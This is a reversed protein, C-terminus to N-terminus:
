VECSLHNWAYFTQQKRQKNWEICNFYKYFQKPLGYVMHDFKQTNKWIKLAAIIKKTDKGWLPDSMLNMFFDSFASAPLLGM